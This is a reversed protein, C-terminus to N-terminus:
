SIFKFIYNKFINNVLTIFLINLSLFTFGIFLGIIIFIIDLDILYISYDTLLM